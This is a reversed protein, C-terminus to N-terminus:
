SGSPIVRGFPAVEVEGPGGSKAGNAIGFPSGDSNSLSGGDYYVVDGEDLSGSVTLDYSGDLWITVKEGEQASTKAVGAYAGIVVPDGSEVDSTATLAIHKNHTYRQNLAM